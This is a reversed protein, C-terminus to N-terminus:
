AKLILQIKIHNKEFSKDKFYLFINSIVRMKIQYTWDLFSKKSFPSKLDGIAKKRALNEWIFISFLYVEEFM